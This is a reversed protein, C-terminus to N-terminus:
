LVIIQNSLQGTLRFQINNADLTAFVVEQALRKAYYTNVKGQLTVRIEENKIDVSATIGNLGEQNIREAIQASIDNLDITNAQQTM